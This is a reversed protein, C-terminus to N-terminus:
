VCRCPVSLGACAVPLECGNGAFPKFLGAAVPMPADLLPALPKPPTGVVVGGLLPAGNREVACGNLGLPLKVGADGAPPAFPAVSVGIDPAAPDFKPDGAKLEVVLPVPKLAGGM